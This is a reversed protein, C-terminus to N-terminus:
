PSSLLHDMVERLSDKLQPKDKIWSAFQEGHQSYAQYMWDPAETQLWDRFTIWRPNSIGYVEQAVWCLGGGGFGGGGLGGAGGAGGAAGGQGGAGTAGTVFNFTNIEGIQTFFPFPSVRVYRRDASIIGTAFLSAGEPLTGIVPMFGVAGQGPPRGAIGFRRMDRAFAAAASLDSSPPRTPPGSSAQALISRNINKAQAEVDQLQALALPTNRRGEKVDVRVIADKETLSIQERVHRQSPRGVDTLVDITVKGSSVNGYIRRLLIEYVGSFGTPCLYTESIGRVSKEGPRGDRYLVGGSTTRRNQL